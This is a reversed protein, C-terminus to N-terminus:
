QQNASNLYKLVIPNVKIKTSKKNPKFEDDDKASELKYKLKSIKTRLISDEGDKTNEFLTYNSTLNSALQTTASEIESPPKHRLSKSKKRQDTADLINESKFSKEKKNKNGNKPRSHWSRGHVQEESEDDFCNFIAEELNDNHLNLYYEAISSDDIGTAEMFSRELDLRKSTTVNPNQSQMQERLQM